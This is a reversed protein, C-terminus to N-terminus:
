KWLSGVLDILAQTWPLDPASSQERFTDTVSTYAANDCLRLILLTTLVIICVAYQMFFVDAPSSHEEPAPTEETLVPPEWRQEEPIEVIVEEM